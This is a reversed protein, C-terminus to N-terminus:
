RWGYQYGREHRFHNYWPPAYSHRDHRPPPAFHPRHQPPQPWFNGHRDDGRHQHDHRREYHALSIMARGDSVSAPRRDSMTAASVAGTALLGLSLAAAALLRHMTAEQNQLSSLIPPPSPAIRDPNGSEWPLRYRV